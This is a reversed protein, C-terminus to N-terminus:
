PKVELQNVVKTEGAATKAIKDITLKEQETNVPGRLTVEGDVTIIKVNKATISLAGDKVVAQRINQTIKIDEPKNSQDGATKTTGDRDRENKKSNDEQPAKDAGTLSLPFGCFIGLLALALVPKM